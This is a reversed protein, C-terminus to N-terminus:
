KCNEYAPNADMIVKPSVSYAPNPQLKLDEKTVTHSPPGVQEYLVKEQPTIDNPNHSVANTKGKVCM